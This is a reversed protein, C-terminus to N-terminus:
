STCYTVLDVTIRLLPTSLLHPHPRLGGGGGVKLGLHFGSLLVAYSYMLCLQVNFVLQYLIYMTYSTCLFLAESCAIPSSLIGAVETTM